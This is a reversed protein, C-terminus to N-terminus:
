ESPSTRTGWRPGFRQWGAFARQCLNPGRHPVRVDGDRTDVQMHRHIADASFALSCAPSAHRLRTTGIRAVAGPPLPDGHADTFPAPQLAAAASLGILM